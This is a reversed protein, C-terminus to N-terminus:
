RTKPSTEFQEQELKKYLDRKFLVIENIKALILNYDRIGFYMRILSCLNNLKKSAVKVDENVELKNVLTVVKKISSIARSYNYLHNYTINKSLLCKIFKEDDNFAISVNLYNKAIPSLNKYKNSLFAIEYARSPLMEVLTEGTYINRLYNYHYKSDKDILEKEEETLQKFDEKTVVTQFDITCENKKNM